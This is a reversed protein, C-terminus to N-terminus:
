NEDLLILSDAVFRPLNKKSKFDFPSEWTGLVRVIKGPILTESKQKLDGRLEVPYTNGNRENSKVLGFFISQSNELNANIGKSVKGELVEGQEIDKSKDDLKLRIDEIVNLYEEITQEAKELSSLLTSNEQELKTIQTLAQQFSILHAEAKQKAVIATQELSATHRKLQIHLLTFGGGLLLFLLANFISIELQRSSLNNFLAFFLIISSGFAAFYLTVLPTIVFGAITAVIIGGLLISQQTQYDQIQGNLIYYYWGVVQIVAWFSIKVFKKYKTHQNLFYACVTGIELGIVIAFDKAKPYPPVLQDLFLAFWFIGFGIFVLSYLDLDKLKQIFQRPQKM